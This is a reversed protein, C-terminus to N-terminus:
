QISGSAVHPLIEFRRQGPAAASSL